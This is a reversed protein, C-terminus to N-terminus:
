IDIEMDSWRGSRALEVLQVSQFSLYNGHKANLTDPTVVEPTNVQWSMRDSVHIRRYSTGGSSFSVIGQIIRPEIATNSPFYVIDGIGIAGIGTTLVSVSTSEAHTLNIPAGLIDAGVSSLTVWMNFTLLKMGGDDNHLAPVPLDMTYSSFTTSSVAQSALTKNQSGRRSLVAYVTMATANATACNFRLRCKRVMPSIHVDISYLAAMFRPDSIGGWEVPWIRLFNDFRDAFVTRMHSGGALASHNRRLQQQTRVEVFRDAAVVSEDLRIFETPVANSPTRM